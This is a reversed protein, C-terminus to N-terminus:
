YHVGCNQMSEVIKQTKVCVAADIKTTLGGRSRGIDEAAGGRAGTASRHAKCITGDLLLKDVQEAAVTGAFLRQWIGAKCWRRFRKRVADSNGFEVPLDAWARGTRLLYCVGALFRRNRRRRRAELDARDGTAQGEAGGVRRRGADTQDHVHSRKARRRM